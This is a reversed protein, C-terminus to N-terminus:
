LHCSLYQFPRVARGADRSASVDTRDAQAPVVPLEALITRVAGQLSEDGDRARKLIELRHERKAPDLAKSPLKSLPVPVPAV